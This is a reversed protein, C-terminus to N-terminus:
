DSAVAVVVPVVFSALLGIGFYKIVCFVSFECVEKEDSRVSGNGVGFMFIDSIVGGVCCVDVVDGVCLLSM